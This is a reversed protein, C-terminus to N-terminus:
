RIRFRVVSQLGDADTETGWAADLGVDMLTVNGPVTALGVVRGRSDVIRWRHVDPATAPEELWVSTDMGVLIRVVPPFYQPFPVSQYESKRSPSLGRRSLLQRRVSDVVHSPIPMARYDYDRDILTDGHMSGIVRLHYRADHSSRQATFVSAIAPTFPDGGVSHACLPITIPPSGWSCRPERRLLPATVSLFRGDRDVHVLSFGLDRADGRFWAPVSGSAFFDLLYTGDAMVGVVASGGLLPAGDPRNAPPLVHVPEPVTRLLKRDPGIFTVRRIGSDEVHLTDGNWGPWSMSRFEGPGEGDRGFTGLPVGTSSFFRILMDQPQFVAIIGSRSALVDRVVSLNNATADVTLDKEATLTQARIQIPHLAAFTIM